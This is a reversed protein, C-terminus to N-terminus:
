VFWDSWGKSAYREIPQHFVLLEVSHHFSVSSSSSSSRRRQQQQQQPHEEVQSTYRSPRLCSIPHRRLLMSASQSKQFCASGGGALHALRPESKSYSCGGRGTKHFIKRRGPSPLELLSPDGLCSPRTRCDQLVRAGARAWYSEFITRGPSSDESRTSVSSDDDYESSSGVSVQDLAPLSIGCEAKDSSTMLGFLSYLTKEPDKISDVEKAHAARYEGEVTQRCHAQLVSMTSSIKLRPRSDSAAHTADVVVVLDSAITRYCSREDVSIVFLCVVIVASPRSSSGTFSTFYLDNSKNKALRRVAVM